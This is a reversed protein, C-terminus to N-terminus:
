SASCCLVLSGDSALLLWIDNRLINDWVGSQRTSDNHKTLHQNFAMVMTNRHFLMCVTKFLSSNFQSLTVYEM